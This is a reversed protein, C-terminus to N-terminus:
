TRSRVIGLTASPTISVLSGCRVYLRARSYSLLFEKTKVIVMRLAIRDGTWRAGVWRTERCSTITVRVGGM